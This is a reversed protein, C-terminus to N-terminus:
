DSGKKPSLNEMEIGLCIQLKRYQGSDLYGANSPKYDIDAGRNGRGTDAESKIWWRKVKRVDVPINVFFQCMQKVIKM